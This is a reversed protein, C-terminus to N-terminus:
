SKLYDELRELYNIIQILFINQMTIFETDILEYNHSPNELYKKYISYRKIINNTIHRETNRLLKIEQIISDDIISNTPLKSKNDRAVTRDYITMYAADIFVNFSELDTVPKALRLLIVSDKDYIRFLNHGDYKIRHISNITAIRDAIILSYSYLQDSSTLDKSNSPEDTRFILKISNALDVIDGSNLPVAIGNSLKVGNILTGNKSYDIITYKDKQMNVQAHNRSVMISAPSHPISVIPHYDSFERGVTTPFTALRFMNGKILGTGSPATIIEFFAKEQAFVVTEGDDFVNTMLKITEGEDTNTTNAIININSSNDRHQNCIKVETESVIESEPIFDHLIKAEHILNNRGELKVIVTPTTIQLNHSRIYRDLASTLKEIFLQDLHEKVLRDMKVQPLQIVFLCPAFLKNGIRRKKDKVVGELAKLLERWLDDPKNIFNAFVERLDQILSM